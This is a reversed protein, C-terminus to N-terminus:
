AHAHGMHSLPSRLCRLFMFTSGIIQLDHTRVRPITLSQTTHIERWTMSSGFVKKELEQEVQGLTHEIFQHPLM